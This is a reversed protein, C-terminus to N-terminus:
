LPSLPHRSEWVQTANTLGGVRIIGNGIRMTVIKTEADKTVQVFM